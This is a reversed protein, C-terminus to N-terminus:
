TPKWPRSPSSSRRRLRRTPTDRGSSSQWRRETETLRSTTRRLGARGAEDRAREAWRSIGLAEFVEAAHNLAESALAKHGAPRYLQGLELRSWAAEFPCESGQQGVIRVLDNLADDVDGRAATLLAQCREAAVTPEARGGAGQRQLVGTAVEVDDM